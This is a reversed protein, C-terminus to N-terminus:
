SANLIVCFLTVFGVIPHAKAPMSPISPYGEVDVIILIVVVLNLVLVLTMCLRHIQFLAFPSGILWVNWRPFGWYIKLELQAPKCSVLPRHQLTQHRSDGRQIPSADSDWCLRVGDLGLDHRMRFVSFLLTNYSEYYLIRRRGLSSFVNTFINRFHGFDQLCFCITPIYISGTITFFKSFLFLFTSHSWLFTVLFFVSRVFPFWHEYWGHIKVLVEDAVGGGINSFATDTVNVMERSRAQFQEHFDKVGVAAVHCSHLPLPFTDCTFSFAKWTYAKDENPINASVVSHVKPWSFTTFSGSTMSKTLKHTTRHSTKHRFTDPSTASFEGMRLEAEKVLLLWVLSLSCHVCFIIQFKPGFVEDRGSSVTENQTTWGIPVYMKWSMIQDFEKTRTTHNNYSFLTTPKTTVVIQSVTWDRFYFLEWPLSILSVKKVCM